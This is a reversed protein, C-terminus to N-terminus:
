RGKDKADIESSIYGFRHSAEIIRMVAEVTSKEWGSLWSVVRSEDEFLKRGIYSEIVEIMEAEKM